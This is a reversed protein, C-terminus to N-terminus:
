KQLTPTQGLDSTSSVPPVGTSGLISDSVFHRIISNDSDTVRKGSVKEKLEIAELFTPNLNTAMDLHWLVLNKDPNPKAMEAVANEYAMEALRERGFFMMGKRVGVRLEEARKMQEESLQSYASDDKLIHPTLMIIIEQRVTQDQQERFLVGLFPISGLGPVQGRTTTPADRFLGGIVITHGDKVMMNTTV